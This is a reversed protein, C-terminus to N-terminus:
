PKTATGKCEKIIQLLEIKSPCVFSCLGCEICRELNYSWAKHKEGRKYSRYFLAPELDVPCVDDCFNCCVCERPEGLVNTTFAMEDSKVMPFVVKSDLEKLVVVSNVDWDIERSLDSIEMGRLPGNVFVRYKWAGQIRSQILKELSTGLQVRIIENEKLGTGSLVIYRSDVKDGRICSAYVASVTQADLVLIGLSATDSGFRVDRGLLVKALLAPDDQPYKPELACVKMWGVNNVYERAAAVLAGDHNNIALHCTAEPFYRTRIECLKDFFESIKHGLIIWNPLAWPEVLCLNVIVHEIKTGPVHFEFVAPASDSSVSEVISCFRLPYVDLLNLGGKFALTKKEKLM